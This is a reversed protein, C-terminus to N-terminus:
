SGLWYEALNERNKTLVEKELYHKFRRKLGSEEKIKDTKCISRLASFEDMVSRSLLNKGSVAEWVGQQTEKIQSFRKCEKLKHTNVRVNSMSGYDVALFNLLGDEITARHEVGDDTSDETLTRDELLCSGARIPFVDYESCHSKPSLLDLTVFTDSCVVQDLLSKRNDKQRAKKLLKGLNQYVFQLNLSQTQELFLKQSALNCDIGLFHKTIDLETVNRQSSSVNLFELNALLRQLDSNYFQTYQQLQYPSIYNNYSLSLCGMNLIVSELKPPKFNLVLFESDTPLVINPDNSTLIIPRKAVQTLAVIAALFGRDEEFAIDIEELVILSLKEVKSGTDNAAAATNTIPKKLKLKGKEEKPSKLKLKGKEEQTGSKKKKRGKSSKDVDIVDSDTISSKNPKSYFKEIGGASKRVKKKNANRASIDAILKTFDAAGSKGTVCHSQSAESFLEAVNKGARDSSANLEMVKYGLQSACTAIAGSKGVGTPGTILVVNDLWRVEEEDSWCYESEESDSYSDHRKKKRQKENLLKVRWGDLWKYLQKVEVKNGIIMKYDTPSYIRSWTRDECHQADDPQLSMINQKRRCNRYQEVRKEINISPHNTQLEEICEDYTKNSIKVTHSIPQPVYHRFGTSLTKLSLAADDIPDTEEKLLPYMIIEKSLGCHSMKPWVIEDVVKSASAAAVSTQCSMHVPSSRSSSSSVERFQMLKKAEQMLSSSSMRPAETKKKKGSSKGGLVASVSRRPPPKEDIIVVDTAPSANEKGRKKIPTKKKDRKKTDDEDERDSVITFREVPKRTRMSRRGVSTDLENQDKSTTLQVVEQDSDKKNHKKVQGGLESDKHKDESDSVANVSKRNKLVMKIPSDKDNVLKNSVRLETKADKSLNSETHNIYNKMMLEDESDSLANVSKRGKQKMKIPSDEENALKTSVKLKSEIDKSLNSETIHIIDKKKSSEEVPKSKKILNVVKKNPNGTSKSYSLADKISRPPSRASGNVKQPNQNIKNENNSNLQMPSDSDKSTMLGAHLCSSKEVPKEQTIVLSQDCEQMVKIAKHENALSSSLKLKNKVHDPLNVDIDVVEKIESALISKATSPSCSLVINSQKVRLTSLSLKRRKGSDVIKGGGKRKLTSASAASEDHPLEDIVTCQPDTSSPEEARQPPQKFYQHLTGSTSM